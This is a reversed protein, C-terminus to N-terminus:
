TVPSSGSLWSAFDAFVPVNAAYSYPTAAKWAYVQNAKVAPLSKWVAQGNADSQTAYNRSDDLVLDGSFENLKEYSIESFYEAPKSKADVFTVGLTQLYALDPHQAANAIYAKDSDRTIALVRLRQKAVATKIREVEAEFAAKADTVAATTTDAGLQQALDMFQTIVQLLNLNLMKAGLTPAIAEIKPASDQPIYWLTKDDFSMDVLLQPALAAYKEVNFEGYTSGLVTLESLQLNGAQYDLKGDSEKLEGYAGKVKFGADWLAAAASSQAVVVTPREALEIKKGRADTYSFGGSDGAPPSAPAGGGASANCGTLALAVGGAGLVFSRRTLSPRLTTM